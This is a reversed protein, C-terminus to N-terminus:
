YDVGHTAFREGNLECLLITGVPDDIESLMLSSGAYGGVQALALNIGYSHLESLAGALRRPCEDSPCRLILRNNLYPQITVDWCVGKPAAPHPLLAPVIRGDYDDAYLRAAMGLHRMNALCSTAEARGLAAELAPLLIAALILIIAMVVIMEILTFGLSGTVSWGGPAHRRGM